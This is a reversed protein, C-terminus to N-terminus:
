RPCGVRPEFFLLQTELTTGREQVKQLLARAGPGRHRNHVAADRLQRRPGRAVFIEALERMADACAPRTSRLGGQRHSAEASGPEASSRRMSCAARSRRRGQGDVIPDLNRSSGLLEPDALLEEPLPWRFALNSFASGDASDAPAPSEGSPSRTCSSGAAGGVALATRGSLLSELDSGVLERRWGTLTRVEPEPGSQRAAAIIQELESRSAILEYALGAEMARARLLAEALAILPADSSDSRGRRTMGAHSRLPSPWAPASRRSCSPQAGSSSLRTFGASRTSPAEIGDRTVSPWNSCRRTRCVQPRRPSGRKFHHTRALGGPASPWRGLRRISSGSAPCVSGPRRPIVNTPLPRSGGASRSRGLRLEGPATSGASSRTPSNRTAPPRRRRRRLQTAGRDATACGLTHLQRDQRRTPRPGLEAPKRVRVARERGRVRRRDRTDFINPWAAYGLRAGCSRPM